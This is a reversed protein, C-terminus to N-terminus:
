LGGVRFAYLRKIRNVKKIYDRTEPFKVEGGSELWLKVNGEGANYAALIYDGDFRGQLYSLYYIGLRLNYEPEFLKEDSYEEGLEDSLWEATSPMLQMLGKAGSRSVANPRYKSETWIVALALSPEVSFEVCYRKIYGYYRIPLLADIAIIVVM